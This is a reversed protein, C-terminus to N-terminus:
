FEVVKKGNVIYVGPQKAADDSVRRGDITYTGRRKAPVATNDDASVDNIGALCYKQIATLAGLIYYTGGSEHTQKNMTYLSFPKYGQATLHASFATANSYPVVEDTNSHVLVLTDTATPAWADYVLSNDKFWQLVPAMSENSEDLFESKFINTMPTGDTSNGGVVVFLSDNLVKSKYLKSDVLRPICEIVNPLVADSMSFPFSAYADMEYPILLVASPFTTNNTAVLDRYMGLIDYPGDGLYSMNIRPLEDNRYGEALLRDVWAGNHGGQSYGLNFVINGTDYGEQQLLKRGAIFADINCRAAARGQLYVQRRDDTLGFGIGDSEIIFCHSTSLMGELTLASTVATPRESAATITYHNLLASAKATKKKSHVDNSMFIAGSLMIPTTGDVDVTNYYFDYRWMNGASALQTRAVIHDDDAWVSGVAAFLMALALFMQKKM